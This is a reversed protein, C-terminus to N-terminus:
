FFIFFLRQNMEMERLAIITRIEAIRANQKSITPGEGNM